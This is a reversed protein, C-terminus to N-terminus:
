TVLEQGAHIMNKYSEFVVHAEIQAMYKLPSHLTNNERPLELRPCNILLLDLPRQLTIDHFSIDGGISTLNFM